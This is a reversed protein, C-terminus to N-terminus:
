TKWEWAQEKKDLLNQKAEGLSFLPVSLVLFPSQASRLSSEIALQVFSTKTTFHRKGDHHHIGRNKRKGRGFFSCFSWIMLFAICSSSGSFPCHFFFSFFQHDSLCLSVNVDSALTSAPTIM